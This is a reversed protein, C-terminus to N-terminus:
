KGTANLKRTESLIKTLRNSFRGSLPPSRWGALQAPVDGDRTSRDTPLRDCRGPGRPRSRGANKTTTGPAPPHARALQFERQLDTLAVDLYLMFISSSPRRM